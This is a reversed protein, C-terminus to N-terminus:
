EGAPPVGGPEEEGCRVEAYVARYPGVISKLSLHEAQGPALCLSAAAAVNTATVRAWREASNNRARYLGKEEDFTVTVQPCADGECEVAPPEAPARGHARAHGSLTLVALAACAALRRKGRRWTM